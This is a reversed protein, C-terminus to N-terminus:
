ALVLKNLEMALKAALNERNYVAIQDPVTPNTNIPQNERDIYLNHLTNAISETDSPPITNGFNTKKLLEAVAGGSVLAVIPRGLRLYEYVKAPVQMYTWETLAQKKIGQGLPESLVVVVDAGAIRKLAERYPIRAESVSVIDTLQHRQLASLFKKSHGQPGCGLFTLQLNERCLWKRRLCLAVAALLPEPDRNEKDILGPHLIEFKDIPSPIINSFDNEDYGNTITVFKEKPVNPYRELFSKEM